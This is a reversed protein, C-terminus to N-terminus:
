CIWSRNKWWTRVTITLCLRFQIDPYFIEVPVDPKPHSERVQCGTKEIKFIWRYKRRLYCHGFGYWHCPAKISYSWHLECIHYRDRFSCSLRRKPFYVPIGDGGPQNWHNTRSMDIQEQSICVRKKSGPPTSAAQTRYADSWKEHKYEKGKGVLGYTEPYYIFLWIKSFKSNWCISKSWSLALRYNLAIAIIIGIM